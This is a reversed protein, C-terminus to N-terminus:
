DIGGQGDYSSAHISHPSFAVRSFSAAAVMCGPRSTSEDSYPPARRSQGETNPATSMLQAVRAPRKIGRREASWRGAGAWDINRYSEQPSGQYRPGRAHKATLFIPTGSSSRM